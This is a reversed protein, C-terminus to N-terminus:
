GIPKSWTLASCLKRTKGADKDRSCLKDTQQIPILLEVSEVMEALKLWGKASPKISVRVNRKSEYWGGFLLM